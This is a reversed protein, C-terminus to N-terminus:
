GARKPNKLIFLHKQTNVYKDTFTHQGVQNVTIGKKQNEIHIIKKPNNSM